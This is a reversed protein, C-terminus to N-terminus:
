SVILLCTCSLCIALWHAAERETLEVESVGSDVGKLGEFNSISDSDIMM